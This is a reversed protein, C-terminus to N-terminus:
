AVGDPEDFNWWGSRDVVPAATAYRVVIRRLVAPLIRFGERDLERAADELLAVDAASLAVLGFRGLTWIRSRCGSCRRWGASSVSLTV